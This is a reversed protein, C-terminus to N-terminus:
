RGAWCHWCEEKGKETNEERRRGRANRGGKMREGEGSIRLKRSRTGPFGNRPRSAASLDGGERRGKKRRMELEREM